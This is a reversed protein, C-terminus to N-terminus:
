QANKKRGHYNCYMVEANEYNVGIECNVVDFSIVGKGWNFLRLLNLIAYIKKVINIM